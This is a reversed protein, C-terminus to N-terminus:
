AVCKGFFFDHLRLYIQLESFTLVVCFGVGPSETILCNNPAEMTLDSAPLVVAGGNVLFSLTIHFM